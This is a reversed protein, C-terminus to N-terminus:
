EITFRQKPEKALLNQVFEQAELTIDNWKKDFIL